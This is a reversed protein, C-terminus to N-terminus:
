RARAYWSAYGGPGKGNGRRLEDDEGLSIYGLVLSGSQRLRKVDSATFAWPQIVVMKYDSLLRTEEYGYYLTFPAM